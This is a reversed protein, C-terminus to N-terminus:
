FMIQARVEVVNPDIRLDRRDSTAHVYNGQLKLYKTLYWNAGVTWDHETGGLITGDDLDLTSYRLALEVAGWTGVPNVDSLNANAYSRSEGTLIWTTFAYWGHAEYARRGARTVKADLYESKAAWPGHILLFELGRRDVYGVDRLAGSDVLRQDLLGAEPRARLRASPPTWVGRGDRTGDPTERSGSVGLHVVDGPTNRPTWAFRAATMHGDLDGQLDGGWYYGVDLFWGPRVIMWDAGVRRGAYIAQVPLAVELFTTSGTGTLSEFGVLTKSFGVRLSGADVGLWPKSQMRVFVDLWTKMQFDFVATAEYVGKKRAFIGLEKRRNTQADELTGRDNSFRDLDFQYKGTVGIDTGDDLVTHTPWRTRFDFADNGANTTAIALAPFLLATVLGARHIFRM